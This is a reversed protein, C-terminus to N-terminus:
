KKAPAGSSNDFGIATQNRISVPKMPADPRKAREKILKEAGDDGDVRHQDWNASLDSQFPQAAPKGQAKAKNAQSEEKRRVMSEKKLRDQMDRMAQKKDVPVAAPLGAPKTSESKPEEPATQKQLAYSTLFLCGGLLVLSAILIPRKM